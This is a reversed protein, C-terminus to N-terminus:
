FLNGTIFISVCNYLCNGDGHVKKAEYCLNDDPILANALTDEKLRQLMEIKPCDRIIDRIGNILQAHIVQCQSKDRDLVSRRLLEFNEMNDM